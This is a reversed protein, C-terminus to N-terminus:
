SRGRLEVLLLGGFRLGALLKGLGGAGGLPGPQSSFGPPLTGFGSGRLGLQVLKTGACGPSRERQAVVLRQRGGLEGSRLGRNSRAEVLRKAPAPRQYQLQGHPQGVGPRDQQQGRQSGPPQVAPPQPLRCRCLNGAPGHKEKGSTLWATNVVCSYSNTGM